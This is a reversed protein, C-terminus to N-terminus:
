EENADLIRYLLAPNRHYHLKRIIVGAERGIFIAAKDHALARVEQVTLLRRRETLQEGSGSQQGQGIAVSKGTSRGQSESGSQADSTSTGTATNEAHSNTHSRNRTETHTKSTGGSETDTVTSTTSTSTGSNGSTSSSGGGGGPGYSNGSSWGSGVNHSFGSGIATSKSWGTSTSNGWSEGQSIADARGITTGKSVSDGKTKSWGTQKGTTQGEQQSVNLQWSESGSTSHSRDVVTTEGALKAIWECTEVDNSGLFQIVKVATMRTHGQGWVSAIQALNQFAFHVSVRESRLARLWDEMARWNGFARAEDILVHVDAGAKQQAKPWTAMRVQEIGCEAMLRLWPAAMSLEGDPVTVYVTAGSERVHAWNFSSRMLVRALRPDDVFRTAQSMVSLYGQLEKPAKEALRLMEAGTERVFNPADAVSMAKFVADSEERGGRIISRARVLTKEERPEVVLYGLIGTFLETGRGKWQVGDGGAADPEGILAASFGQTRAFFSSSRPDLLDLPNCCDSPTKANSVLGFPDLTYVPSGMLRRVARTTRVLEGDKPDIVIMGARRGNSSRVDHLLLPMFVSTGKGEGPDGLILRHGELAYSIVGRDDYTIPVGKTHRPWNAHVPTLNAAKALLKKLAKPGLRAVQERLRM